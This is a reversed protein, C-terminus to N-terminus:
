DIKCLQQEIIGRIFAVVHLTLAIQNASSNHVQLPHKDDLFHAPRLTRKKQRKPPVHLFM